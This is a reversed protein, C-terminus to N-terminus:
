EEGVVSFRANVSKPEEIEDVVAIAYDSYSIYSKGQSNFHLHDKGAKYAGTRKGQPDFFAAPSLFTWNLGVTKQLLNLNEGQNSATAYYEKPFNPTDMLRVTAAEDVYLSGAGGVVFLRTGSVGKLADILVNGAEVHAAENGPTAGFANVVVDFSTLDETTLQFVDQEKVTIRNDNIKSADRVFATVEHGRGLAEEAILKGAKGSAGIIAIKM